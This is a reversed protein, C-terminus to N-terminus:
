RERPAPRAEVKTAPQLLWALGAEHMSTVFAAQDTYLMAQMGARLAGDINEERDDVFLINEPSVGLGHAAAAYIAPEPKALRLRHSFTRHSFRMLWPCRELVGAEMADGLNSLIGTPVGAAQLANAWEIMPANPQTWLETDAHLLDNLSAPDLSRGLKAAVARWYGEGNLTGRDYEHRPAWYAAHFAEEECRLLNKMAEWAPAHPPGTLVLGYDFLVARVPASSCSSNMMSM